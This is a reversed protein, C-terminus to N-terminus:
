FFRFRLPLLAHRADAAFAYRRPMAVVIILM